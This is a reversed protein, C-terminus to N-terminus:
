FWAGRGYGGNYQRQLEARSEHLELYADRGIPLPRAIKREREIQVNLANELISQFTPHLQKPM